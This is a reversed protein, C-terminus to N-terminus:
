ARGSVSDKPALINLHEEGSPWFVLFTATPYGPAECRIEVPQDRTIEIGSKAATDKLLRELEAPAERMALESLPLMQDAFPYHGDPLRDM